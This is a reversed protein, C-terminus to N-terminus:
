ARQSTVAKPLVEELEPARTAWMGILVAAAEDPGLNRAAIARATNLEIRARLKKDGRTPIGLPARWTSVNVDMIRSDAEGATGWKMRWIGRSQELSAKATVRNGQIFPHYEMVMVPKVGYTKGLMAVTSTVYLIREEDLMRLEGSDLYEGCWYTAWGSNKGPDVSLILASWPTFMGRM